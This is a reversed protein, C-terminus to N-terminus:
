YLKNMVIPLLLPLFISFLFLSVLFCDDSVLCFSTSKRMRDASTYRLSSITFSINASYSRNM